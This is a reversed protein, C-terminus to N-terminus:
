HSSPARFVDAVKVGIVKTRMRHKPRLIPVRKLDWVCVVRLPLADRKALRIEMAVADHRGLALLSAIEPPPSPRCRFHQHLALDVGRRQMETRRRGHGEFAKARGHSRDNGRM